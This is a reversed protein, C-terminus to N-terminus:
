LMNLLDTPRKLLFRARGRRLQDPRFGWLAGAAPMGAARATDLDTRTDGVFLTQAPPVRLSRSIALALRPDPKRPYRASAGWVARLPWRGFFHRVMVRTLDHPKNSLIGIPIRRRDLGSLLRPIGPYPRTRDKWRLAYEERLATLAARVLAPTRHKPPLVRRVLMDMGSGIFRRYEAPRRPPLSLRALVRNMAAGIDALSNLLTGDLDFLVARIIPPKAM